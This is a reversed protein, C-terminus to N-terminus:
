QQWTAEKALRKIFRDAAHLYTGFWNIKRGSLDQHRLGLSKLQSQPSISKEVHLGLEVSFLDPLCARPGQLADLQEQHLQQLLMAATYYFKFTMRAPGDLQNLTELTQQAYDPHALLLPILAMRLRAEPQQVLGVMLTAPQLAADKATADGGTIFRVGLANLETVLQVPTPTM